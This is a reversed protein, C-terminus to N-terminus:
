ISEENEGEANEYAEVLSVALGINDVNRATATSKTFKMMYEQSVPEDLSVGLTIKYVKSVGTYLFKYFEKVFASDKLAPTLMDLQLVNSSDWTKSVGNSDSFAAADSIPARSISLETFPVTQTVTQGEADEIEFTVTQAGSNVGNQIFSYTLRFILPISLGAGPRQEIDGSEPQTGIRSVSFVEGSEDTMEVIAPKSTFSAIATKVPEISALPNKDDKIKVNLIIQIVETAVSLGNAPIIASDIIKARGEVYEIVDNYQRKPKTHYGGETQLAFVTNDSNLIANLGTNVDRIINDLSIM